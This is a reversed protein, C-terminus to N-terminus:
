IMIGEKLLTKYWEVTITRPDDPDVKGSQLAEWIEVAGKEANYQPEFGLKEKIKSFSVRYSRHDPLGYWEYEFPVGIAEAIRKALDFIQYNQEESGVNFIERNVM